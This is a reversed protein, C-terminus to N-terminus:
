RRYNVGLQSFDTRLLFPRGIGGGRRLPTLGRLVLRINGSTSVYQSLGATSNLVVLASENGNNRLTFSRIADYNNTTWNFVFFTGTVDSTLNTIAQTSFTLDIVDGVPRNITFDLQVAAVEGQITPLSSIDYFQQDSTLVDALTGSQYVGLRTSVGVPPYIAGGLGGNSVTWKQIETTWWGDSRIVMGSGWFTGDESPDPQAGFYDGWRNGGSRYSGTSAVLQVPAGMVGPPDAATRGVIMLDAAISNSCRTFIITKDGVANSAIAPMFYSQNTAPRVNGSQSLSPSGGTPWNHLDVDYWRIKPRTDSTSYAIAHATLIHGGRYEANLTRDGLTNLGAGGKSTAYNDCFQWAPTSVSQRSVQPIADFGTCAYVMVSSLTSLSIGYLNSVDANRTECIQTSDGNSDLFSTASAQGGVLLNDKPLMIFQTGGYPGSAFPFMNGTIAIGDKSFGFGPYDLWYDNGGVNLKAEVRYKFWNGNPDDNDSVAVDIKSVHNGFDLELICVFFRQAITDYFCKPDSFFSAQATGQFFGSLGMDQQFTKQGTDKNFFAITTNVTQVIHRPGVAMKVDPPVWGTFGIGGFKPGRGGAFLAKGRHLNPDMEGATLSNPLGPPIIFRPHEHELPGASFTDNIQPFVNATSEVVPSILQHRVVPLKADGASAALILGFAFSGAALFKFSSAFM